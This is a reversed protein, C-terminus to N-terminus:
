TRRRRYAGREMEFLVDLLGQELAILRRRYQAETEGVSSRTYVICESVDPVYFDDDIAADCAQWCSQYKPAHKGRRAQSQHAIWRARLLSNAKAQAESADNKAVADALGPAHVRYSRKGTNHSGCYWTERDASGNPTLNQKYLGGGREGPELAVGDGELSKKAADAVVRYIQPKLLATQSMKRRSGACSAVALRVIKLGNIPEARLAAEAAAGKGGSVVSYDVIVFLADSNEEVVKRHVRPERESHYQIRGSNDNYPARDTLLVDRHLLDAVDGNPVAEALKRAFALDDDCVKLEDHRLPPVFRIKTGAKIAADIEPVTRLAKICLRTLVPASHDDGQKLYRLSVTDPSSSAPVVNMLSYTGTNGDLVFEGGRTGEAATAEANKIMRQVSRAGLGDAGGFFLYQHGDHELSTMTAPDCHRPRKAHVGEPPAAAGSDSEDEDQAFVSRNVAELM